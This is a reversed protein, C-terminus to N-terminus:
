HNLQMNLGCFRGIVALRSMKKSNGRIVTLLLIHPQNRTLFIESRCCCRNKNKGWFDLNRDPHRISQWLGIAASDLRKVHSAGPFGGEPQSPSSALLFALIWEPPLPLVHCSTQVQGTWDKITRVQTSGQRALLVAILFYISIATPENQQKEPSSLAPHM